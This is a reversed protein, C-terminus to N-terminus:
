KAFVEWVLDTDIYWEHINLFRESPVTVTGIALGKIKKPLIYVFEPAYLFVAPVDKSIEVGFKEYAEARKEPDTVRRMDELLKDAISSTYLAINLGPDNRQSSHWFAFLDSDRGVIEGFLLADYKRPRIVNQNLDGSEFIKLEVSAGISEWEAKIQEAVAKLEPVDSTALSFALRVTEKKSKKKEYVGGDGVTWGAKELIERAQARREETSKKEESIEAYGRSGPPIPGILPTGYGFLVDRIITERPAVESLMNRVAKEAFIPAQNQNFFVGFVRPLPARLVLFGEDSLAQASMPSIANVSEIDGARLARLLADENTYFSMRINKIYPKGLAYTRFPILDYYEPIGSKNRKLASIKYPGSGVPEINFESFSFQESDANKWITKPMIGITTNELFPSYPQKLVFQIRRQDLKEVRVGEWSARKPSKLTPDQAKLITFEVDDTTIPTGDHFEIDERLTFTYFLGDDSIEYSEALDPVLGNKSARMLGAYLLATMDRDADSIALLPNIFRPIGIVGETISGGEAPIEVLFYRNIQWLIMVSSLVATVGFIGFVIRERIGFTQM